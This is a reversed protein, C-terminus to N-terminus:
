VKKKSFVLMAKQFTKDLEKVDKVTGSEVKSALDRLENGAADMDAKAIHGMHAAKLKMFSVAKRIESAAGPRDNEQLKSKAKDFHYQYADEFVRTADIEAPVMAYKNNIVNLANSTVAELKNVDKDKGNSISNSLEDIQHSAALIRNKQFVLFSNGLRLETSAKSYEGKQLYEKALAFHYNPADMYVTWDAEDIPVWLDSKANAAAVSPKQEVSYASFIIACLGLGAIFYSKISFM